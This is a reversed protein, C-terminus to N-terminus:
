LYSVHMEKCFTSVSRLHATSLTSSADGTPMKASGHAFAQLGHLSVTLERRRSFSLGRTWSHATEACVCGNLTSTTQNILNTASDFCTKCMCKRQGMGRATKYKEADLRLFEYLVWHNYTPAALANVETSKVPEGSKKAEAIIKEWIKCFWPEDVLHVDEDDSIPDRTGM